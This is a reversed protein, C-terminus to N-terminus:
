IRMQHRQNMIRLTDGTIKKTRFNIMYPTIRKLAETM